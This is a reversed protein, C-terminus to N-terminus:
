HITAEKTKRAIWASLAPHGGLPEGLKCDLGELRKAIGGEIGGASILVPLVLVTKGDKGLAAVQDRLKQTAADRVPPPADDRLTATEVAAFGEEKVGEALKKLNAIWRENDGDDNPGHAVLLVAERNPAGGLAHARDKLATVTEPSEDLAGTVDVSPFPGPIVPTLAGASAMHHHAHPDSGTGHHMGAMARLDAESFGPQARAGLLYQYQRYVESHSSVLLPVAAVRRAGRRKLSELAAAMAAREEPSVAMGYFIEV